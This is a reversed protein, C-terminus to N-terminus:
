ISDIGYKTSAPVVALTLLLMGIMAGAILAAVGMKFDLYFGVYQGILYSWNGCATVLLVVTLQRTTWTRDGATLPWGSEAISDPTSSMRAKGSNQARHAPM